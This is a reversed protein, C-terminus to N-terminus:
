NGTCKLISLPPLWKCLWASAHPAEEEIWIRLVDRERAKLSGPINTCRVVDGPAPATIALLDLGKAVFRNAVFRDKHEESM